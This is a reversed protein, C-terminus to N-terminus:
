RQAACEVPCLAGCSPVGPLRHRLCCVRRRRCGSAGPCLAQALPSELPSRACGPGARWGLCAAVDDCADTCASACAAGNGEGGGLPGGPAGGLERAVYDLIVAANGWLVRPAIGCRAHCLEVFPRLHAEVLGTLGPAPCAACGSGDAPLRFRCPRGAADLELSVADFALPLPRGLRVLATLAPTALAALYFQSWYSVRVRPDATRFAAGFGAGFAALTADFVDPDRLAGLPLAEPGGPGEAVGDRYAALTDPVQAAVEAIM